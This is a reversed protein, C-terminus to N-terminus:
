ERIAKEIAPTDLEVLVEGQEVSKGVPAISLIKLAGGQPAQVEIRLQTRTIEADSITATNGGLDDRKSRSPRGRHAPERDRGDQQKPSEVERVKPAKSARSDPERGPPTLTDLRMVLAEIIEVDDEPGFVILSNTRPDFSTRMSVPQSGSRGFFQQRSNLDRFLDTVIRQMDEADAHKLSFIKVVRPDRDADQQDIPQNAVQAQAGVVLGIGFVSAAIVFVFRSM